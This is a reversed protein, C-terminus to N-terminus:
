CSPRFVIVLSVLVAVRWSNCEWSGEAAQPKYQSLSDTCARMSFGTCIWILGVLQTCTHASSLFFGTLFSPHLNLRHLLFYWDANFNFLFDTLCKPRTMYKSDRRKLAVNFAHVSVVAQIYLKRETDVVELCWGELICRRSSSRWIRKAQSCEGDYHRM